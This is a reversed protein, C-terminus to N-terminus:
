SFKLKTLSNKVYSLKTTNIVFLKLDVLYKGSANKVASILASAQVSEDVLFALDRKVEPFKSISKFGEDASKIVKDIDVEFLYVSQVM